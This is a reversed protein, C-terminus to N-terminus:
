SYFSGGGAGGNDGFESMNNSKRKKNNDKQRREGVTYPTGSSDPKKEEYKNGGYLDDFPSSFEEIELTMIAWLLVVFLRALGANIGVIFECLIAAVLGQISSIIALLSANSSEFAGNMKIFSIIVGIITLFLIRLIMYLVDSRMHRRPTLLTRTSFTTISRAIDNKLSGLDTCKVYVGGSGEALETMLEDNVNGFGVTSISVGLNNYEKLVISIEDIYSDGDSLLLVKPYRGGNIEGSKIDQAVTYLSGLINTRLGDSAFLLQEAGHYSNMDRILTADDSFKYVAYPITEGKMIEPVVSVRENQSDNIEMSSSDDIVFIYSTPEYTRIGGGLEYLFELLIAAMFLIVLLLATKAFFGGLKETQLNGSGQAILLLIPTLLLAFLTVYVAVALPNWINNFLFKVIIEGLIHYIVGYVLSIILGPIYLKKGIKKMRMGRM